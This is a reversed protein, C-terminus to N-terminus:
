ETKIFIIKAAWQPVINKLDSENYNVLNYIGSHDARKLTGIFVRGDSLAVVSPKGLFDAFRDGKGKGAKVGTKEYPIQWGGLIAPIEIDHRRSFYIVWGDHFVPLMADGKVRIAIVDCPDCGPPCEVRDKASDGTGLIQGKEGVTGSVQVTDQPELIRLIKQLKDARLIQTKGRLFDRVTDKPVHADKELGAVSLSERKLGSRILALLNDRTIEM